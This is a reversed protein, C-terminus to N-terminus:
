FLDEEEVSLLFLIVDSLRVVGVGADDLRPGELVVLHKVVVAVSACSDGVGEL